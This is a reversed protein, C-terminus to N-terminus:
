WVAFEMHKFPKLLQKANIILSDGYGVTNSEDVQDNARIDYKRWILGSCWMYVAEQFIANMEVTENQNEDLVTEIPFNVLYCYNLSEALAQGYFLEIEDRTVANDYDMDELSSDDSDEVFVYGQLRNLINEIAKDSLVM